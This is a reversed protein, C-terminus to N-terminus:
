SFVVFFAEFFCEFIVVLVTFISDGFPEFVLVWFFCGGFVMFDRFLVLFTNFHPGWPLTISTVKEDNKLMTVGQAGVHGGSGGFSAGPLGWVEKQVIPQMWKCLKHM